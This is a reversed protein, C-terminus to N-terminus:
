KQIVVMNKGNDGVYDCGQMMALTRFTEANFFVIHTPDLRYYWSLFRKIDDYHFQTQIALYGGKNLRYLLHEFVDKPDHLHEFVEVSVILDYQKTEYSKDPYYIPDYFDCEVGEKTLMGALLSTAGCGFDLASEPSGTLPLVYDMFRRFYAQYGESNEENQHLDYREKQEKYDQYLDPSKFIFQCRKCHYHQTSLKEDDFPQCISSCILCELIM